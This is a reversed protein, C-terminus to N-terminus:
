KGAEWRWRWVLPEAPVRRVVCASDSLEMGLALRFLDAWTLSVTDARFASPTWKM